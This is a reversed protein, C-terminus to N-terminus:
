GEEEQVMGPMKVRFPGLDESSGESQGVNVQQGLNINLTLGEGTSKEDAYLHMLKGLEQLAEVKAYKAKVHRKGAKESVELGVLALGLHEKQADTLQSLPKLNYADDVYETLDVSAMASWQRMLKTENYLCKDLYVQEYYRVAAQVRPFKLISHGYDDCCGALISSKSINHNVAYLESFKRQSPTLGKLIDEGTVEQIQQDQLEQSKVQSEGAGGSMHVSLSSPLGKDENYKSM